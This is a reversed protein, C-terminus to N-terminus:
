GEKRRNDRASWGASLTDGGSDSYTLLLEEGKLGRASLAASAQRPPLILSAAGSNAYSRLYLSFQVIGGGEVLFRAACGGETFVPIGNLSYGFEVEWGQDTEKVSVLYLRAEGCRPGIASLATQRCTEVSDFLAGSEGQNLVPFLGGGKRGEYQYQAVGRESLRVSDDGSRAVQEDTSYFSTSNLSFGLDQVLTQLSEQGASM